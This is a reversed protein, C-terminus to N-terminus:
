EVCKDRVFGKLEADEKTNFWIRNEKSIRMAWDCKATHYKNAKKSAVYKGPDFNKKVNETKEAEANASKNYYTGM